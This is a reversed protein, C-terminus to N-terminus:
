NKKRDLLEKLAKGYKSDAVEPTLVKYISDLYKPNAQSVETVMLYPTAYSDGNNLGFNLAYRFKRITNQDVLNQLSDLALSDAQFEPISAQQVLSLERINFKSTMDYFEEMKEQSKSGTIEAKTDFTNWATKINIQGPEGFFTIRDNIDNNDKKDLYLYFIDPTVVEETFSFNGDGNIELSDLVVLTSDKAQQLYLTGKKLGKINGTLVMTNETNKECSVVVLGLLMVFLIQKMM